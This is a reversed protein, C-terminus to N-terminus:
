QTDKPNSKLHADVTFSKAFCRPKYDGKWEKISNKNLAFFLVEAPITGM